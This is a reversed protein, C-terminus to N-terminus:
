RVTPPRDADSSNLKGDSATLAQMLEECSSLRHLQITRPPSPRFIHEILIQNAQVSVQTERFLRLVELVRQEARTKERKRLSGLSQDRETAFHSGPIQDIADSFLQRVAHFLVDHERVHASLGLRQRCRDPDLWDAHVLLHCGDDTDAYLTHLSLRGANVFGARVDQTYSCGRLCARLLHDCWSAFPGPPTSCLEAKQFRRKQEEDATRVLHFSNLVAWYANSLEEGQLGM